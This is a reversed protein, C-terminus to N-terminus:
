LEKAPVGAMRAGEPVDDIVAAGAGIVANAGVSVGERVVAGIGIWASTGVLVGGALRAGPSIHVFDEVVCDHDISAATNIIVGRGITTAANVIAGAVLLSGAGIRASPSVIAQSHILSPSQWLDLEQFLQARTGNSGVACFTSFGEPAHAGAIPWGNHSKRAPWDPDFFLIEEYGCALATDAVVKGHGGAGILHLRTM